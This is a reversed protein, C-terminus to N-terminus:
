FPVAWRVLLVGATAILAVLTAALQLHGKHTGGTRLDLRLYGYLTALLALVLAAGSGAYWLRGTVVAEHLVRRFDERVSDDFELLAHVQHMPGVSESEVVESYEAKKVRHHLYDLSVDVLEVADDDNQWDRIYQDATRKLVADLERQCEPLSAFLGSHISTSYVTNVLKAPADIWAPRESVAAPSVAPPLAAATAPVSAVPTAPLPPPAPSTASPVEAAAPAVAEATPPVAEPAAPAEAAAPPERKADSEAPAVEAAPQASKEAVAQETEEARSLEVAVPIEAARPPLQDISENANARASPVGSPRKARGVRKPKVSTVSEKIAAHRKAAEAARQPSVKVIRDHNGRSAVQRPPAKVFTFVAFAVAAIGLVTFARVARPRVRGRRALMTGSIVLITGLVIVVWKTPSSSFRRSDEHWAHVAESRRWREVPNLGLNVQFTYDDDPDFARDAAFDREPGFNRDAAGDIMASQHVRPQAAFLWLGAFVAIVGLITLPLVRGVLSLLKVGVKLGLCLVIVTLLVGGLITIEGLPFM